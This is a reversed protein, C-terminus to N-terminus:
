TEREFLYYAIRATHGAKLARWGSFVLPESQKEMELYVLAAKSLCGSSELRQMLEPLQKNRYPPDLFVIDYPDFSLTLEDVLCRGQIIEIQEGSVEFVKTNEKLYRIIAPEKDVFSVRKAGRSLAEFGLAGSGAFLDLCSAGRIYPTLWNFLTERLRDHTPRLDPLDPFYLVRRRWQGGIIRLSGANRKNMILAATVKM